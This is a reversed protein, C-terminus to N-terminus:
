GEAPRRLLAIHISVLGYLPSSEGGEYEENVWHKYNTSLRKFTWECAILKFKERWM